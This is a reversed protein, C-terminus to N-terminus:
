LAFPAPRPIFRKFESSTLTTYEVDSKATSTVTLTVSLPPSQASCAPAVGVLFDIEVAPDGLEPESPVEEGVVPDNMARREAVNGHGAVVIEGVIVDGPEARPEAVNVAAQAAGVDEGDAEVAEIM